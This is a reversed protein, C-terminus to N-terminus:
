LPPVETTGILWLLTNQIAILYSREYDEREPTNQLQDTALQEEARLADSNPSRQSLPGTLSRGLAWGLTTLVGDVHRLQPNIGGHRRMASRISMAEIYVNEADKRERMDSQPTM